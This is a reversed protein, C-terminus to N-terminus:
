VTIWGPPILGEPPEAAAFWRRPAFVIKEAAESLWAAWWSFTSNAIVFHRCAALLRLDVAPHLGATERVFYAPGPLRLHAEAWSVDDSFVFFRPATVRSAIADAAAAYYEAPQVGHVAAIVPDSVYDGRRVHVGVAECAAIEAAVGAAAAPLAARLAFDRRLQGAVEPDLEAYGACQWPGQLVLNGPAAFLRPDFGSQRDVLLTCSRGSLVRAAAKLPPPVRSGVQARIVLRELRHVFREDIRFAGLGYDRSSPGRPIATPDLVLTRGTRLAVARGAAYQFMQNGLGGELRVV